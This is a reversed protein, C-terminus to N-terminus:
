ERKTSFHVAVHFMIVSAANAVNVSNKRGFMPIHVCSDCVALVHKSIGYEENGMVVVGKDPWKFDTYSVTGEVTEVGIVSAGEQKKGELMTALDDTKESVVWRDAGMASKKVAPHDIGFGGGGAILSRFGAADCLRFISGVNFLSRLGDLAMHYEYPVEKIRTETSDHRRVPLLLDGDEPAFGAKVRHFHVANSFFELWDRYSPSDPKGPPNENMWKLVMCYESYVTEISRASIRNATLRGYVAGLWKIVWKHQTSFALRSFKKETFPFATM